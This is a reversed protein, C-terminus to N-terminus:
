PPRSRDRRRGPPMQPPPRCTGGVEPHRQGLLPVLQTFGAYVDGDQDEGLRGTLGHLQHHVVLQRRGDVGFAAQARQHLGDIGPAGIARSRERDVDLDVGAHVTDAGARLSGDLQGLGDGSVGLQGELAQEGVEGHGVFWAARKGPSCSARKSATTAARAASPM